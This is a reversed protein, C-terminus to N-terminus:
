LRPGRVYRGNRESPFLESFGHVYLIPKQPETGIKVTNGYVQGKGSYDDPMDVYTMEFGDGLHDPQWHHSAAKM